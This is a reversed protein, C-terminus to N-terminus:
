RIRKLGIMCRATASKLMRTTDEVPAHCNADTILLTIDFSGNSKSFRMREEPYYYHRRSADKAKLEHNTYAKFIEKYFSQLEFTVAATTDVAVTIDYDGRKLAVTVEANRMTDVVNSSQYGLDPIIIYDYEKTNVVGGNTSYVNVYEEWMAGGGKPVQFIALATDVQDYYGYYRYRDERPVRDAIPQLRKDTLPQLSVLGHTRVMYSIISHKEEQDKPKKSSLLGKLRSLQSRQSVSAMSQPGFTGLLTVVFLSIPIVKIAARKNVLFYVTIGSLWVAMLILIYRSETIGYLGVRKWIALILLVLLPIMLVYFLRSFIVIWRNGSQERIPYILLLSLIGFVAYGTILNSVTGKPLRWEVAIKVEYLLLIGLYITILPILVYQTFIKLGKPYSHDENLAAFDKPVGALFFITNFATGIVAFLRLYIHSKIEVSFLADIAALAICLGGILVGSYLGSTLFRLFLTKNYQWFGNTDDKGVFPAFAVLLHFSFALLCMRFIDGQLRIPDLVFELLAAIALAGLRLGWRRGASFQRSEAFLDGALTLTLALNCVAMLQLLSDTFYAHYVPQAATYGLGAAVLALICATPFRAFVGLAGAWLSGFSPFRM